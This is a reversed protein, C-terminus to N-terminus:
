TRHKEIVHHLGVPLELQTWVQVRALSSTRRRLLDELADDLKSRLRWRTPGAYRRTELLLREVFDPQAVTPNLSRVDSFKLRMHDSLFEAIYEARGDIDEVVWDDQALWAIIAADRDREEIYKAPDLLGAPLTTREGSLALLAAVMLVGVRTPQQRFADSLLAALKEPSRTPRAVRYRGIKDFFEIWEESLHENWIFNRCFGLDIVHRNARLVEDVLSNLEALDISAAAGDVWDDSFKDDGKGLCSLVFLACHTVLARSREEMLNMRLNRLKLFLKPLTEELSVSFNSITFPFGRAAIQKDFPLQSDTPYTIDAETVGDRQWREEAKFWDNTDGLDGSGARNALQRLGDPTEVSLVCAGLTWPASWAAWKAWKFDTSNAFRELAIALSQMSPKQRFDTVAIFLQWAPHGTPMDTIADQLSVERQKLPKINFKLADDSHESEELLRLPIKMKDRQPSHENAMAQFARFWGPTDKDRIYRLILQDYYELLEFPSLHPVVRVLRSTLWSGGEIVNSVPLRLLDFDIDNQESPWLMDGLQRAWGIGTNILALLCTWAGLRHKSDGHELRRQLEERYTRELHPDYIAALRLHRKGPPLDLLRLALRALSQAFRPQQRASGDELLELALQSGALVAAAVEDEGGENLETCIALISDRLYQREAFCKGAAFLFVNRWNVVPAIERLRERAHTDNGSMLGEAAMFEQLPRIEFGIQDAQLGVLFVLRNTAAEIIAARLLALHEGEHGEEDLRAEVVRAFDDESLRAETGGAHESKIQLLLGVHQHIKDIDARNQRLIEAAPIDREMERKYVIGYYEKFLNWNDQPPQGTQDVLAAMITVQLPSNMLRATAEGEVARELRSMIRERREENRGYRVQTLRRAYHLARERSLPSLWLHRYFEPSFDDNYGQPRTTAIVLVDANGGAVDIWFDRVAALVEDRNSSAPVEDLGDLVLLWPYSKLWLRFDNVSVERDTRRRIENVIFSLLSTAQETDPTALARAFRNLVVRVPFRRATPVTLHESICSSQVADLELIVEPPLMTKPKERLIATRFIQCIFQGLTTKGQGPGGILVYRGLTRPVYHSDAEDEGHWVSRVDAGDRTLRQAAVNIMNAVFGATLFKGSSDVHESIDVSQKGFAPIDVFVKSVSIHEETVHGAQNLNIYQDALLEKQLYLSLTEDFDPRRPELSRVVQSLVDGPTIWAAYAQRIDAMDDLFRCIKDYDWVDFGKLPLQDAYETVLAYVKDKAGQDQVPTLVVNTAFLYFEPKRRESHPDAFQELEGRLQQLAWEGDRGADQTRQRFKAQVIGYGEWMAEGSPYPVRGEFTAERGGDPGDGFVIVNPGFSKVTIAQVLQEFSRTSLGSLNYDPM